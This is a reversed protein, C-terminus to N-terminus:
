INPFQSCLMPKQYDPTTLSAPRRYKGNWSHVFEHLLLDSQAALLEKDTFSNEQLGNLSSEHHETGQHFINESLAVLFHYHLYHTTGFLETAEAVFKRYQAIKDDPLELSGPSDAVIDMESMPASEALKVNRYYKGTVLPSDVLTTLSAPRFRITQAQEAISLATGFQWGEPIRLRAEVRIDDTDFGTPYLLVQNWNITGLLASSTRDDTEAPIVYDLSIDIQSVDPPVVCHILYPEVLDRRWTLPQGNTSLKLDVLSDIPGTPAHDGPIWKPYALTLPGPNVPVVLQAHLLQRGVETADLMLTIPSALRPNEGLGGLPLLLVVLPVFRQLTPYGCTRVGRNGIMGDGFAAIM